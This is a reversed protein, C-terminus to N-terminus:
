PHTDTVDVKKSTHPLTLILATSSSAAHGDSEYGLWIFSECVVKSCGQDGAGDGCLGV